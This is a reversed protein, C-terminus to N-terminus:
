DGLNVQPGGHEALTDTHARVLDRRNTVRVILVALLGHAIDEENTLM